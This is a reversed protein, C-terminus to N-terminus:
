LVRSRTCLRSFGAPLPLPSSTSEQQLPNTSAAVGRAHWGRGRQKARDEDSRIIRFDDRELLGKATRLEFGVDLRELLEDRVIKEEGSGIPLESRFGLVELCMARTDDAEALVSRLLKLNTADARANRENRQAGMEDNFHRALRHAPGPAIRSDPRSFIAASPTHDTPM